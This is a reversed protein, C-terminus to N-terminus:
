RFGFRRVSVIEIQDINTHHSFEVIWVTNANDRWLGISRVRLAPIPPKQAAYTNLNLAQSWSLKDQGGKGSIPVLTGTGADLGAQVEDIEVQGYSVTTRHHGQIPWAIFGLVKSILGVNRVRTFTAQEDDGLLSRIFPPTQDIEIELDPPPVDGPLRIINKRRTRTLIYKGKGNQLWTRPGQQEVEEPLDRRADYTYKLDPINAIERDIVGDASAAFMARRVDDQDFAIENPLPGDPFSGTLRRFLYICVRDYITLRMLEENATRWLPM